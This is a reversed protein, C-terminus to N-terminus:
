VFGGRGLMQAYLAPSRTPRLMGILDIQPVDFGIALCAVSVLCDIRGARYKAVTEARRKAPTRASVTAATVGHTRLETAIHDAHEINVAFVLWRTRKSGRGYQVLEAICRETVSNDDVAAALETVKFDGFSDTRM